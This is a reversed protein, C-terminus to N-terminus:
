EGAPANEDTTETAPIEEEPEITAAVEEVTEGVEQVIVGLEKLEAVQEPAFSEGNIILENYRIQMKALLEATKEVEGAEILVKIKSKNDSLYKRNASVRKADIKFADPKIKESGIVYTDYTNWNERIENSLALLTKLHPFRDCATYGEGSMLKLREHVSRMRAYKESNEFILGQIEAPLEDHDKRKGVGDEAILEVLVTEVETTLKQMTEADCKRYKDGLYKRLEYDIKEFNSKRVVNNYMIENRNARIMLTAGTNLDRETEPVDLWNQIEQEFENLEIM